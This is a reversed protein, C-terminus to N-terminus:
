EKIVLHDHLENKDDAQIPFDVELIEGCRKIADSFAIGMNGKKIGQVLLNCIENWTEPPHKDSIAKDALVVVRHEMLSAFLLIGTADKTNKIDSEYFELEARMEVQDQQDSRSTFRRQIFSFRSVYSSLLLLIVINLLYWLWSEGLYDAQWTPGDFLLFLLMLMSLVLVPVHGVTSSRRVIMPVIEASTKAEAEKVSESVLQVRESRLYSKSWNPIEM